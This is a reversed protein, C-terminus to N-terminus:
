RHTGRPAWARDPRTAAPRFSAPGRPPSRGPRPGAARTRPAPVRRAAPALLLLAGAGLLLLPLVATLDTPEWRPFGAKVVRGEASLAALDSVVAARAAAPGASTGVPATALAALVLGALALAATWRRGTM